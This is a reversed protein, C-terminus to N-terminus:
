TGPTTEEEAAEWTLTGEGTDMVLQLGYTGDTSPVDPLEKEAAAAEVATMRTELSAVAPDAFPLDVPPAPKDKSAQMRAVEDVVAQPVNVTEGAGLKYSVGGVIVILPNAGLNTPVTYQM